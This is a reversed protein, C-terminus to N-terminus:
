DKNLWKNSKLELQYEAMLVKIDEMLRDVETTKTGDYYGRIRKDKDVLVFYESHLFGGPAKADEQAPLKYHDVGLSYIEDRNGTCLHWISDNAGVLQAYDQLISLSDAVPDVSHSVIAFGPFTRFKEQVRVMQSAMDKCIGPCRTFFFDAVYIKGNLDAQSITKGSQDILNFNPIKHYITDTTKKGNIVTDKTGEPYFIPLHVFNHRGTTLLLYLISPLLLVGFLILAKTSFKM